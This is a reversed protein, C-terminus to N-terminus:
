PTTSCLSETAQIVMPKLSALPYPEYIHLYHLAVGDLMALFVRAKNKPQAVGARQFWGRATSLLLESRERQSKALTESLEPALLLSLQLKLFQREKALFGFYEDVFAALAESAPIDRSLPKAVATMRATADQILGVLLAEKSSFYNYVLGKSVGAAETIQEVTTAFYGQSEFLNLASDFIKQKGRQPRLPRTSEKVSQRTM